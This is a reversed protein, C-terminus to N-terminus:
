LRQSTFLSVMNAKNLVEVIKDYQKKASKYETESKNLAEIHDNQQAQEAILKENLVALEQECKMQKSRINHEYVQYLINERKRIEKELELYTEAETKSGNLNDREKEAQKLRNVREVRKENISDLVKSAEEIPEVFRDSGIIEELYELLGTDKPGPAKPKMMAIQEVEGQLILFRNNELDIGYTDLLNKVDTSTSAKNNILYKSQNDRDAIRSIVFESNPVVEFEDESEDDDYIMQFYVSVQAYGLNPYNSSKHILESVKKLRLQSARKAFVFLLADIVNSKGSGNPGVISSFRKHFPGIEQIGAYSKFNELIMRTIMLRPPPRSKSVSTM